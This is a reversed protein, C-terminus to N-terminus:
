SWVRGLKSADPTEPLPLGAQVSFVTATSGDSCTILVESSLCEILCACCPMVVWVSEPIVIDNLCWIQLASSYLLICAFSGRESRCDKRHFQLATQMVSLLATRQVECMRWSRLSHQRRYEEVEDISSSFVVLMDLCGLIYIVPVSRRCTGHFCFITM